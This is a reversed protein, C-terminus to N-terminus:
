MKVSFGNGGNEAHIDGDATEIDSSYAQNHQVNIKEKPVEEADEYVEKDEGGSNRSDSRRNNRINWILCGGGVILLMAAAACGGIIANTKYTEMLESFDAGDVNLGWRIVAPPKEPRSYVVICTYYGFVRDDVSHATLNYASYRPDRSTDPGLLSYFRRDPRTNADRVGGDPFMWSLSLVDTALTINLEPHDCVMSVDAFYKVTLDYTHRPPQSTVLHVMLTSTVLLQLTSFQRAPM